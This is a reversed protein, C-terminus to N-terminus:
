QFVNAEWIIAAYIAFRLFRSTAIYLFKRYPYKVTGMLMCIGAYPLPTFAAVIVLFGGFRNVHKEFKGLYNRQLTRYLKTTSFHSGIYYGIIGAIYSLIAFGAISFIYQIVLEDRLAWIMFLEPPIIGFVTESVFFILYILQPKDYLSGLVGELTFNYNAKLYFYGGVIVGLWILGRVLNKLFFRTRAIAEQQNDSRM